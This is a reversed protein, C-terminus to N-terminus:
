PVANNSPPPAPPPAPSQAAEAGNGKAPPAAKPAPAPRPPKPASTPTAQGSLGTSPPPPLPPAQESPALVTGPLSHLLCRVTPETGPEFEREEAPCGPGALLGTEKCVLVKVKGGNDDLTREGGGGGANEEATLWDPKTFQGSGGRAAIAAQMVRRWAPGCVTGGYVGHMPRNHDDGLWVGCVFDPTFGIFWADRNDSTTGTKGGHPGGFSAPQGTGSNMVERLMTQMEDASRPNLVEELRPASRYLVQGHADSIEAVCSPNVKVGLTAFVSYARTLELLTVECSGLAISIVPRLHSTIGLREAYAVVTPVTVKQALRVAPINISQALAETLTVEGHWVGDYNQPRWTETPGLKIELPADLVKDTPKFGQEVAATYVVPKFASGPQRRAQTARNYPSASYDVGGTLALMEGSHVDYLLAAGQSAGQDGCDRVAARVAADMAEQLPLRVNTKITLGDNFVREEGVLEIAEKVAWATYYPAYLPKWNPPTYPKLKLPEHKAAEAAASTVFGDAVM